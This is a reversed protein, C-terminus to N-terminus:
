VLNSQHVKALMAMPDPHVFQYGLMQKLVQNDVLKFGDSGPLFVPLPLGAVRAAETYFANRTPHGDAVGNLVLGWSGRAILHHLLRVADDLHILNVPTDGNSIAQKGAFFRGPHRNPGVLGGMRVVTTRFAPHHRLYDEAELMQVGATEAGKSADVETVWRNLNPYVSTSSVFLVQPVGAKEALRAITQLKALYLGPPATRGPPINILLLELSRFFSADGQIQPDFSLEYADIGDARLPALKEPRTTSARVRFGQQVLFRAM